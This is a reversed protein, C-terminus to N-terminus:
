HLPQHNWFPAKNLFFKLAELGDRHPIITYLSKVDMTFIFKHSGSFRTQDFIQLAHKTDKIYSSLTKVLPFMFNDRFSSILETPCSCASVIPSGHNDPKHIKPLFYIVPTRPTSASAPLDGAQIFHNITTKVTKQHSLTPDSNIKTYFSADSLQQQVAGIQRHPRIIQVLICWNQLCCRVHEKWCGWGGCTTNTYYLWMYDIVLIWTLMHSIQVHQSFLLLICYQKLPLRIALLFIHPENSNISATIFPRHM